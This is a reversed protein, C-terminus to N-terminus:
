EVGRRYHGKTTRGTTKRGAEGASSGQVYVKAFHRALEAAERPEELTFSLRYSECGLRKVSAAETLLSTALSNYIINYCSDCCCAVPFQMGKRDKLFLRSNKHVCHDLNKKLCQASIMMPFRGYLILQSHSNDRRAIEGCSLELPITNEWIGEGRWFDQSLSNMTYMGADLIVKKELGAEKLLALDELCRVLFGDIGAQVLAPLLNRYRDAEGLRTIYPLMLRIRKGERRLKEIEPLLMRDPQSADEGAPASQKGLLSVANQNERFDEGCVLQAPLYFGQIEEISQLARLQALNEVSAWLSGSESARDPLPPFVPERADERRFPALLAEEMKDLGERRLENLIQLPVFIPGSLHIDLKQFFFPSGGTKQMQIRVREETVPQNRAEQVGTREVQVSIAGCRLQLVAPQGPALTMRGVLGIRQQCDAQKRRIEDYLEQTRRQKRDTLKENKLAMMKRGNRQLYYSQNFGDRHFLDYLTQLDEQSVRYHERGGELYLDLYKRYIATVGSTYELRKMRGEIKLSTVGAELISPLIELTCMDKTNLPYSSSGDNLRKGGEYLEYPLRCPQACRGRNGSRGGILSSMLCQGSYSYCLAGHIFSEVELSTHRGIERIERLSLERATVVRKFGAKELLAAGAPGTVAMQTSAHLPLGPFAQRVLQAVGLDQVILGDLGAQYYPLLYAYLKEQLEEEKLLTNVTLYIKKGGLHALDIARCLSDEDLNDAYARAGFMTGGTYVADAGATLAAQLTEFSGAPALLEIAM